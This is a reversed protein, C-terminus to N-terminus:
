RGINMMLLLLFPTILAGIMIFVIGTWFEGIFDTTYEPLYERMIATSSFGIGLVVFVITFGAIVGVLFFKKRIIIEYNKDSM